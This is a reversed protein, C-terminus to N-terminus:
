QETRWASPMNYPVTVYVVEIRYIKGDRVKFLELAFLSSPTKFSSVAPTGDTLKFDQIVANHDLFARTLVLQREEDVVMFDRDRLASDFRYNGRRFQEACSLKAAPYAGNPDGASVGGNEARQCEDDFVTFLKGDNQQLTSFYGNAIDVLRERSVRQAPAVIDLMTPFHWQELPSKAPFRPPPSGPPLVPSRNVVTEAEVIKRDKVKLRLLFYGPVGHEEVGGILGVEGKLPDAFKVEYPSKGTITAWLGDGIVLPVNNETFKVQEGFPASAPTHEALAKMYQDAIGTLCARDCNPPVANAALAPSAGAAVVWAVGLAALKWARGLM